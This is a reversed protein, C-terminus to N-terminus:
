WLILVDPVSTSATVTDSGAYRATLVHLGRSLKPLKVKAKGNDGATLTVTAVAKTGDYITVPGTPTVAGAKVTVTYHIARNHNAFLAVSGSTTSKVKEPVQTAAIEIPVAISTGTEPVAVTLQQAGSV